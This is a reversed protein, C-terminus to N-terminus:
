EALRRKIEDRFGFMNQQEIETDIDEEEIIGLTLMKRIKKVSLNIQKEEEEKFREWKEKERQLKAQYKEYGEKNVVGNSGRLENPDNMRNKIKNYEEESIEDWDPFNPSSRDLFGESVYMGFSSSEDGFKFYAKTQM